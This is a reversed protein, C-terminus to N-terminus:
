IGPGDHLSRMAPADPQSTGSNFMGVPMLSLWADLIVVGFLVRLAAAGFLSYCSRCTERWLSRFSGRSERWRLFAIGLFTGTIMSLPGPLMFMLVMSGILGAWLVEQTVFGRTWRFRESLTELLSGVGALIAILCWTLWAGAGGHGLALWGGFAVALASLMWFGQERRRITFLFAVLAALLALWLVAKPLVFMM